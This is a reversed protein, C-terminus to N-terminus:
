LLASFNKISYGNEFTLKAVNVAPKILIFYAGTVCSLTLFGLVEKM